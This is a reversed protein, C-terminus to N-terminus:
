KISTWVLTKHENNFFKLHTYIYIYIYLLSQFWNKEKNQVYFYSAFFFCLVCLDGLGLIRLAEKLAVTRGGRGGLNARKERGQM